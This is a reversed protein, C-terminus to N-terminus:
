AMTSRSLPRRATPSPELKLRLHTLFCYLYHALQHPSEYIPSPNPFTPMLLATETLLTLIIALPLILALTLPLPRTILLSGSAMLRYDPSCDPDCDPDFHHKGTSSIMMRQCREFPEASAGSQFVTIATRSVRFAVMSVALALAVSSPLSRQTVTLIEQEWCRRIM